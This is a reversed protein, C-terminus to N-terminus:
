KTVRDSDQIQIKTPKETKIVPNLLVRMRSSIEKVRIM